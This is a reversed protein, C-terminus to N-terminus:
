AAGAPFCAICDKGHHGDHLGPKPDKPKWHMFTAPVGNSAHAGIQETRNQEARSPMPQANSPANGWRSSAAHSAHESRRTRQKDLGQITYSTGAMNEIVLGCDKLARYAPTRHPLPAWQPWFKDAVVLLRVFAGLQADSNWVSPHEDMLVHYLKVYQGTAM